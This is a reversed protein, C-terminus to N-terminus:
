CWCLGPFFLMWWAFRYLQGRDGGLDDPGVLAHGPSHRGGSVLAIGRLHHEGPHAADHLRHPAGCPQARDRPVHHTDSRLRDGKRSRRIGTRAALADARARYPRHVDMRVPRHDAHGAGAGAAARRRSLGRRDRQLQGLHRDRDPLRAAVPLHRHAAVHVYRDQRRLIGRPPRARPRHRRSIATAILAVQISTRAGYLTRVFVDRGLADVGGWYTKSPGIVPINFENTLTPHIANPGNHSVFKVFLPVLLASVILLIVWVLALM